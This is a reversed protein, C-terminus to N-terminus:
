HSHPASYLASAIMFILFGFMVLYIGIRILNRKRIAKVYKSNDITTILEIVKIEQEADTFSRLPLILGKITTYFIYIENKNIKYGHIDKWEYRTEGNASITKVSEKDIVVQYPRNIAIDNDFMKSAQYMLSFYSATFVFALFLVPLYGFIDIGHNFPFQVWTIIGFFVAVFVASFIFRSKHYFATFNQYDKKVLQVNIKYSANEM